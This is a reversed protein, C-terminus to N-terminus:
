LLRRITAVMADVGDSQSMHAVYEGKRNMLYILPEYDISPAPSASNAATAALPLRYAQALAAVAEPTGTLGVIRPDFGSLFEQLAAATDHGPDLSVLVAQVNSAESGLHRMVEAMTQLTAPTFNSDRAYGFALLLLRGRFDRDTVIRGDGSRALAFPGGISVAGTEIAAPSQRPGILRQRADPLLLLGILAGLALGYLAVGALRSWRWEVTSAM